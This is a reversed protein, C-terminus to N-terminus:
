HIELSLPSCHVEIVDDLHVDGDIASVSSSPGSLSSVGDEAGSALSQTSQQPAEDGPAESETGLVM